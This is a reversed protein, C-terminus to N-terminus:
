SSVIFLTRQGYPASNRAKNRERTDRKVADQRHEHQAMAYTLRYDHTGKEGTELINLKEDSGESRVGMDTLSTTSSTNRKMASSKGGNMATDESTMPHTSKSLFATRLLVFCNNVVFM